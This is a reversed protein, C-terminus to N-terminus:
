RSISRDQKETERQTFSRSQEPLIKDAEESLRMILLGSNATMFGHLLRPQVGRFFAKLGQEQFLKKATAITSLGDAFGGSQKHTKVVDIPNTLGVKVVSTAAAAVPVTWYPPTSDNGSYHESIDKAMKNMGFLASYGIGSKVYMPTIGKMYTQCFAKPTSGQQKFNEYLSSYSGKTQKTIKAVELGSSLLTDVPGTFLFATAVNASNTPNGKEDKMNFAEAFIKTGYSTLPVRWTTNIIQRTLNPELGDYSHKIGRLLGKTGYVKKAAQVFDINEKQSITKITDFPHGVVVNFTSMGAGAATLRCTKEFITEKKQPQKEKETM